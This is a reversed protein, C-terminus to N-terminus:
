TLRTYPLQHSDNCIIDDSHNLFFIGFPTIGIQCARLTCPIFKSNLQCFLLTPCKEDSTYGRCTSLLFNTCCTTGQYVNEPIDLSLRMLNPFFLVRIPSNMQVPLVCHWFNLINSANFTDQPSTWRSNLSPPESLSVCRNLRPQPAFGWSSSAKQNIPYYKHIELLPQLLLSKNQKRFQNELKYPCSTLQSPHSYTNLARLGQLVCSTFFYVSYGQWNKKKKKFM